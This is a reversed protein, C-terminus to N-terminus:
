KKKKTAMIIVVVCGGVIVVAGIIAGILIGSMGDDEGGNGGNPNTSPSATNNNSNNGDTQDAPVGPTKEPEETEEVPPVYTAPDYIGEYVQVNKVKWGKRSGRFGFYSSDGTCGDSDTLYSPGVPTTINEGEYYVLIEDPYVEFRYTIYMDDGAPVLTNLGDDKVATFTQGPTVGILEHQMLTTKYAVMSRVQHGTGIPNTCGILMCAEDGSATEWSDSTALNIAVDMTITYTEYPIPDKSLVFYGVSDTALVTMVYEGDVEEFTFAGTTDRFYQEFNEESALLDDPLLTVLGKPKEAEESATVPLMMSCCLMALMLLLCVLKRM